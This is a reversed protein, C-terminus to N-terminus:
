DNQKRRLENIFKDQAVKLEQQKTVIELVEYLNVHGSLVALVCFQKMADTSFQIHDKGIEDFTFDMGSGNVWENCHMFMCKDSCIDDYMVSAAFAKNSITYSDKQPLNM